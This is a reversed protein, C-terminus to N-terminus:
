NIKLNTLPIHSLITINELQQVLKFQEELRLDIDKIDENEFIRKKHKEVEDMSPIPSYYHGPAYGYEEFIYPTKILIKKLAKKIIKKLQQM